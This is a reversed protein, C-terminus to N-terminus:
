NISWHLRQEFLYKLYISVFIALYAGFIVDTVFHATLIVRSAMVLITIFIYIYKYKPYIFYFFMMVATIIASHGSPFSTLSHGYAFFTFGFLGERFLMVPRYRGFIVKFINTVIGSASLSVFFFLARNSYLPNKDVVKFFIFLLCSIILYWGGQGFFTVYEFLNKLDRNLAWYIATSADLYYFFPVCLLIIIPLTICITDLLKKHFERHDQRTYSRISDSSPSLKGPAKGIQHPLPLSDRLQSSVERAHGSTQPKDGPPKRPPKSRLTFDLEQM